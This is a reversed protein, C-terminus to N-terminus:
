EGGTFKAYIEAEIRKTLAEAEVLIEPSFQIKKDNYQNNFDQTAVETAGAMVKFTGVIKREKNGESGVEEVAWKKMIIRIQM